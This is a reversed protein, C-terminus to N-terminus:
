PAQQGSDKGSSKGDAPKAKLFDHAANVAARHLQQESFGNVQVNGVKVAKETAVNDLEVKVYVLASNFRTVASTLIFDAGQGRATDLLCSACSLDVEDDDSETKPLTVVRYTGLAVITKRLTESFQKVLAVDDPTTFQEGTGSSMMDFFATDFVLLKPIENAGAPAPPGGAAAFLCAAVAFVMRSPLRADRFFKRKM